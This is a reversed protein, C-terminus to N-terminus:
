PLTTHIPTSTRRYLRAMPYHPLIIPELTKNAKLIMLPAKRSKANCRGVWPPFNRSWILYLHVIGSHTLVVLDEEQGRVKPTPWTKDNNTKDQLIPAPVTSTHNPICLPIQPQALGIYHFLTKAKTQTDLPQHLARSQHAQSHLLTTVKHMPLRAWLVHHSLPCASLGAHWAPPRQFGSKGDPRFFPKGPLNFVPIIVM